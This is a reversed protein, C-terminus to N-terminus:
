GRELEEIAAHLRREPVKSWPWEWQMSDDSDYSLGGRGVSMPGPKSRRGEAEVRKHAAKAREGAAKTDKSEGSDMGARRQLLEDCRWGM